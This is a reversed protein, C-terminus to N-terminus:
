EKVRTVKGSMMEVEFEVADALDTGSAFTVTWVGAKIGLAAAGPQEAFSGGVMVNKPVDGTQEGFERAKVVATAGGVNITEIDVAERVKTNAKAKGWDRVEQAVGHEVALSYVHNKDPSYFTFNWSEPIDALALGGTGVGLLIADGAQKAIATKAAAWAKLVGDEQAGSDSGSGGSSGSGGNQGCGALGVIAALVISLVVLRAAARVV